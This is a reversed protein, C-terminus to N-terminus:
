NLSKNDKNKCEDYGNSQRWVIFTSVSSPTNLIIDEQLIFNKDIIKKHM